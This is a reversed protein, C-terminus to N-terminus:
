MSLFASVIHGYLKWDGFAALIDRPQVAKNQLLGKDPDDRVVRTVIITAERDSFMNFSKGFIVKPKAASHPLYLFAM